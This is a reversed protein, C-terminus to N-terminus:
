QKERGILILERLQPAYEQYVSGPASICRLLEEPDFLMTGAKVKDPVIKNQGLVVGDPYSHQPAINGTVEVHTTPIFPREVTSHRGAGFACKLVAERDSFEWNPYQECYDMWWARFMTHEQEWTPPVPPTPTADTAAPYRETYLIIRTTTAADLDFKATIDRLLDIGARIDADKTYPTMDTDPMAKIRATVTETLLALAPMNPHALGTGQVVALAYFERLYQSVQVLSDIMEKRETNM